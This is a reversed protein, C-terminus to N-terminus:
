RSYNKLLLRWPKPNWASHLRSDDDTLMAGLAMFMPDGRSPEAEALHELVPVYLLGGFAPLEQICLLVLSHHHGVLMTQLAFCCTDTLFLVAAVAHVCPENFIHHTHAINIPFFM